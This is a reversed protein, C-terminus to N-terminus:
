LPMKLVHREPVSAPIGKIDRTPLKLALKNGMLDVANSIEERLFGKGASGFEILVELVIALRHTRQV